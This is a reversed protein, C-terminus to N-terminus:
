PFLRETRWVDGDRAFVLREHLRSARHQWFEIREPAVRFGSWFEPRPVKGVGFKVAFKAVRRELALLGELPASQRSAWAGLQSDRHRTAFYADAEEDPVRSVAGEIRVQRGIPMWYFCLAAHPNAHLQRGKRSDLNTYFTFGAEDYGKLLVMRLSPWGAEDATALAVAGPERLGCEQAGAYWEGFLDFPDRDEPIAM